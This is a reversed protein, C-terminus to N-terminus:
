TGAAVEAVGPQSTLAIGVVRRSLAVCEMFGADPIPHPASMVIM